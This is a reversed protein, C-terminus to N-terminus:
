FRYDVLLAVRNQTYGASPTQSDKMRFDYNLNVRWNQTVTYSAALGASYYDFVERYLGTVDPGYSEEYHSYEFYPSVKIRETATWSLSYTVHTGELNAANIGLQSDHSLRAAHNFFRNIQHELSAYAYYTNFGQLGYLSDLNSDYEIRQYGGGFRATLYENPRLRVAPGVSARWHDNLPVNDFSNLSAAGELGLAIVPSVSLFANADFLESHRDIYNFESGNSLLDEHHYGGEVVLHHLDWKAAAGVRNLFRAFRGTGYVNFFEGGTEYFPLEQYSFAESLTIQFDGSYIRFDLLTNPSVTPTGSNLSTNRTYYYYALGLDVRLTNLRGIPYFLGANLQPVLVFDDRADTHTLFVNDVYLGELAASLTIGGRGLSINYREPLAARAQAEAAAERESTSGNATEPPRQGSTAEQAPCYNGVAGAVLLGM